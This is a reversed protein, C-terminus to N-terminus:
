ANSSEKIIKNLSEGFVKEYDSKLIDLYEETIPEEVHKVGLM